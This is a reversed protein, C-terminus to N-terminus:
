QKNADGNRGADPLHDTPDYPALMKLSDLKTKDPCGPLHYGWKDGHDYSTPAKFQMAHGQACPNKHIPHPGTEIRFWFCEDCPKIEKTM